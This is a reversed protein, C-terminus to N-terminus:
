IRWNSIPYRTFYSKYIECNSQLLNLQKLLAEKQVTDYRPFLLAEMVQLGAPDLGQTLAPDLLDANGVEQVPPGNVMRTTAGMFYEAAWEFKKFLLRAKLFLRQIDKEDTKGGSVAPLFTNKIFHHLADVQAVVTGEIDQEPTINQHQQKCSFLVFGAITLFLILIKGTNKRM